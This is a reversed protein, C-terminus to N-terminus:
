SNKVDLSFLFCVNMMMMEHQWNKIANCAGKKSYLVGRSKHTNARANGHRHSWVFEEAIKGRLWMSAVFFNGDQKYIACRLFLLSFSKHHLITFRFNILLRCLTSMEPQWKIWRHCEETQFVVNLKRRKQMCVVPLVNKLSFTKHTM